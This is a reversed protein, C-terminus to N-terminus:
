AIAKIWKGIDRIEEPCVSHPMPYAQATVKYNNDELSKKAIEGLEFPVIDDMMGHGIFVPSQFRSPQIKFPVYGSLAIAGALRETASCLTALAIVAGQSFGAIIINEANIGLSKEHQILQQVRGVSRTIGELDIKEGREFSVIDYWAPMIYGNNITVPMQPAQPFVFRINLQTITQLEHAVPVFDDSTAGLGHLWIISISATDKPNVEICALSLDKNRM